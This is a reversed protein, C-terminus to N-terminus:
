TRSVTRTRAGPKPFMSGADTKRSKGSGNKGTIGLIEGKKVEFSVGRVAEFAKTEAGKMRLLNKKISYSSVSKYRVKLDKVTISYEQNNDIKDM